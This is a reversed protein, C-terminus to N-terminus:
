LFSSIFINYVTLSIMVLYGRPKIQPIHPYQLRAPETVVEFLFNCVYSLIFREDFINRCQQQIFTQRREGTYTHTHFCLQIRQQPWQQQVCCSNKHGNKKLRSKPRYKELYSLQKSNIAGRRQSNFFTKSNAAYVALCYM